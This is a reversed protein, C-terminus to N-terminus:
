KKVGMILDEIKKPVSIAISLLSICIFPAMIWLVFNQMAGWVATLGSTNVQGNIIARLFLETSAILTFMAPIALLRAGLLKFWDVIMKENGPISGLVFTLPATVISILIKIYVFATKILAIIIFIGWVVFALVLIIITFAGVGVLVPVAVGGTTISLGLAILLVAIIAAVLATGGLNTSSIGADAAARTLMLDGIKRLPTLLSVAAAGIPYSFTILVLGIILKPIATEVSVITQPNIQKRIMIMFGIILMVVALLGYSVNRMVKWIALVIRYAFIQDDEAAFATNQVIPVRRAVDKAWYALNGPVANDQYILIEATNAAFSALSNGGLTLKGSGLGCIPGEVSGGAIAGANEDICKALGGATQAFVISTTGDVALSTVANTVTKRIDIDPLMWDILNFPGKDIETSDEARVHMPLISVVILLLSVFVFLRKM